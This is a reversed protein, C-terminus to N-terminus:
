REEPAPRLRGSKPDYRVLGREDAMGAAEASVENAVSYMMCFYTLPDTAKLTRAGLLSPPSSTYHVKL